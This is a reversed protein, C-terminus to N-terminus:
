RDSREPCGAHSIGIVLNADHSRYHIIVPSSILHSRLSPSVATCPSHIFLCSQVCFHMFCSLPSIESKIPKLRSVLVRLKSDSFHYVFSSVTRQCSRIKLLVYEYCDSSANPDIRNQVSDPEIFHALLPIFFCYAM